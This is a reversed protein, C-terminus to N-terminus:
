RDWEFDSAVAQACDEIIEIAGRLEELVTEIHRPLAHNANAWKALQNLNNGAAKLITRAQGFDWEVRRRDATAGASGSLGAEVLYRPLSVGAANARGHLRALEDDSLRVYVQNKRGGSARRLRTPRPSVGASSHVLPPITSSEAVGTDVAAGQAWRLSGSLFEPVPDGPPGLAVGVHDALSIM